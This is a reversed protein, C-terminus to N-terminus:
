EFVTEPNVAKGNKRVQFHLHLPSASESNATDGVVGLADGASVSQGVTVCPSEALSAYVTEYGDSHTLTVTWGLADDLEVSKVTGDMCARVTQGEAALDVANHLRWDQTTENFSLEDASFAAVIEGEVPMVVTPLPQDEEAIEPLTVSATPATARPKLPVSLSASASKETGVNSVFVFGTIGVALLCLILVTYYGKEVPSKKRKENQSNNM